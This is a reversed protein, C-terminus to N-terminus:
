NEHAAQVLYINGSVTGYAATFGENDTLELTINGSVTELDMQETEAGAFARITGSVTECKMQGWQGTIEIDGSISEARCQEAHIRGAIIDGNVAEMTLKASTVASLRILGSVVELGITQASIDQIELSSNATEIELELLSHGRPVQITLIKDQQQNFSFGRQPACYQIILWGENLYYRMMEDEDLATKSSESFTLVPGEYAVVNVEGALWHVELKSVEEMGASGGGTTYQQSNAYNYWHDVTLGFWPFDGRIGVVLLGLLLIAVCSWLVIRIM